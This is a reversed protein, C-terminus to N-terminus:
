FPANIDYLHRRGKQTFAVGQEVGDRVVRQLVGEDLLSEIIYNQKVIAAPDRPMIEDYNAIEGHNKAMQELFIHQDSTLVKLPSDAAKPLSSSFTHQPRVRIPQGAADQGVTQQVELLQRQYGAIDDRAKRIDDQAKVLQDELALREARLQRSEEITLPQQDDYRQKIKNLEQQQRRWADYVAKSPYPYAYIYLVTTALPLALGKLLLDTTSPFAVTDILRFTTSVSADSLLIVLFRYNWLCWSIIFTSLLPSSLREEILRSLTKGVNDLM